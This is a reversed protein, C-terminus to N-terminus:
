HRLLACADTVAWVAAIYDNLTHTCRHAQTHTHIHAHTHSPPPAYMIRVEINDMGYAITAQEETLGIAALELPTFV